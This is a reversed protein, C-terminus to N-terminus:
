RRLSQHTTPTRGHWASELGVNRVPENDGNSPAPISPPSGVANRLTTKLNRSKELDAAEFMNENLMKRLANMPGAEM